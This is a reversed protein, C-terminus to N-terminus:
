PMPSMNVSSQDMATASERRAGGGGTLLSVLADEVKRYSFASRFSLFACSCSRLFVDWLYM